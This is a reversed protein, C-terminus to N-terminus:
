SGVFDQGRETVDLVAGEWRPGGDLRGSRRGARASTPRACGRPRARAARRKCRAGAHRRTGRGGAPPACATTPVSRPERAGAIAERSGNATAAVAKRRERLAFRRREKLLLHKM